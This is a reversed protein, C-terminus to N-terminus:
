DDPSYNSIDSDLFFFYTMIAYGIVKLFAMFIYPGTSIEAGFLNNLLNIARVAMFGGSISHLTDFLSLLGLMTRYKGSGKMFKWASYMMLVASASALIKDFNDAYPNSVSSICDFLAIVVVVVALISAKKAGKQRKQEKLEYMENYADDRSRRMEEPRQYNSSGSTNNTKPTSPPPTYKEGPVYAGPMDFPEAMRREMASMTKEPAKTESAQQPDAPADDALADSMDSADGMNFEYSDTDDDSLGNKNMNIDDM